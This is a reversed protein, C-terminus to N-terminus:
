EANMRRRTIMLIGAGLVLLTGAAYIMATGNGGTSPLVTGAYNEIMKDTGAVTITGGNNYEEVYFQIKNRSINYGAPAVEELIWYEGSKLGSMRIEGNQDTVLQKIMDKKNKDYKGVCQYVGNEDQIFGYMDNGTSKMRITFEANALRHSTDNGDVKILTQSGTVIELSDSDTGTGYDMDAYIRVRDTNFFTNQEYRFTLPIAVVEEETVSNLYEQTLTFTTAEKNDALRSVTYRNKGSTDSNAISNELVGADESLKVSLSSLGPQVTVYLTVTSIDTVLVNTSYDQEDMGVEIKLDVSPYKTKDAAQVSSFNTALAALTGAATNVYYYGCPLSSFVAQSDTATVEAEKMSELQVPNKDQIYAAVQEGTLGSVPEVIYDSEGNKTFKFLTSAEGGFFDYAEQSAFYAGATDTNGPAAAFLRYATYTQGDTANTITISGTEAAAPDEGEAYAPLAFIGAIMLFVAFFSMLKNLTKM